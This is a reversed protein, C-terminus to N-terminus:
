RFMVAFLIIAIAIGAYASMKERRVVGGVMDRLTELVAVNLNQGCKVIVQEFAYPLVLIFLMANALLRVVVDLPTTAMIVCFIIAVITYILSGFSLPDIFTMIRDVADSLWQPKQEVSKCYYIASFITLLVLTILGM